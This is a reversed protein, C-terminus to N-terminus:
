SDDDVTVIINGKEVVGNGDILATAVRGQYQAPVKSEVVLTRLTGDGHKNADAFLAEAVKKKNFTFIPM